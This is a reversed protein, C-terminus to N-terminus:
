KIFEATRKMIDELNKLNKWVDNTELSHNAKKIIHVPIGAKRCRDTIAETSEVWPDATGTFALARGSLDAHCNDFTAELPTYM